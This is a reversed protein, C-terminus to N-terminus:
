SEMRLRIVPKYGSQYSDGQLTHGTDLDFKFNGSSVTIVKGEHEVTDGNQLESIHVEERKIHKFEM